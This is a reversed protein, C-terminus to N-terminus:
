AEGEDSEDGDDGPAAVVLQFNRRVVRQPLVRDLATAADLSGTAALLQRVEAQESTNLAQYFDYPRQWM